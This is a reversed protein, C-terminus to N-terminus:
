EGAAILAAWGGCGEDGPIGPFGVDGHVVVAQVQHAKILDDFRTVAATLGTQAPRSMLCLEANIYNKKERTTLVQWARRRLRQM